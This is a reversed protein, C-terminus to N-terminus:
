QADTRSELATIRAALESTEIAAAASAVAGLLEAAVDPSLRGDAVAALVARAQDGVTHAKALAPLEVPERQQRLPPAVRSLILSAASVDGARAAEVLKRMIGPLEDALATRWATRRDKAGKPKGAPNGSEGTKWRGKKM